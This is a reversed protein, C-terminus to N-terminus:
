NKVHHGQSVGTNAGKGVLTGLPILPSLAGSGGARGGLRFFFGARLRDLFGLVTGGGGGLMVAM